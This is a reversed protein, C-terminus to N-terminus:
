TRAPNDFATTRLAYSNGVYVASDTPTVTFKVAAGPRVTFKVTDVFSAAPVAVEVAAPGAFQALQVQVAVRGRADTYRTVKTDTLSTSGALLVSPRYYASTDANIPTFRVEVGPRAGGGVRTVEVTIPDRLIAHVTDSAVAGPTVRVDLPGGVDTPQDPTDAGGACGALALALVVRRM